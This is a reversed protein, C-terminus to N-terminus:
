LTGKTSPVVPNLENRKVAQKISRGFAKFVAEIKHHENKGKVKIYLNCKAADSFSKFFHRLMETPLDGVYERKFKVKWRLWSRGSFDIAVTAVADDMPLLFGYREIKKKDGLAKAFAEGLAIATDEITHHEDVNLDGKVSIDLDCLSHKALQDLMHDLFNLGTSISSKGEGDLNLEIKVDTEDTKRKIIVKRTETKLEEFIDDWDTTTLAANRNTENSILIAKAGLNNALQVDILRDGIVYSNALDYEGKFYKSFLATGPKRTPSNEEPFTRDIIIDSFIVGENRLITLVKNHAPFFTKEPFSATGLGDQNTAMVLEYDLETAIKRLTSIAKPYFELKELSDIQEDEPEILITGDRDIFLVKKM